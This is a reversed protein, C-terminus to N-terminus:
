AGCAAAGHAALAVRRRGGGPLFRGRWRGCASLALREASCVAGLSCAAVASSRRGLMVGDRDRRCSQAPALLPLAAGCATAGPAGRVARQQEKICEANSECPSQDRSYLRALHRIYIYVLLARTCWAARPNIYRASRPFHCSSRLLPPWPTSSRRACLAPCSVNKKRM